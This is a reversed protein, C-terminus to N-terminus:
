GFKQSMKYSISRLRADIDYFYFPSPSIKKTSQDLEIKYEMLMSTVIKIELYALKWGLCIKSGLGFPYWVQKSPPDDIFRQPDFEKVSEGFVNENKATIYNQVLINDGKHIPCGNIEAGDKIVVKPVASVTPIYRVVEKAFADLLEHKMIFDFGRDRPAITDLENRFENVFKHDKFEDLIYMINCITSATTDHGAWVLILLNEKFALLDNHDFINGDIMKYIISTPDLQNDEYLKLCKTIMIEIEDLLRGRALMAQGLVTDPKNLNDMNIDSIGYSLINGDQIMKDSLDSSFLDNGFLVGFIVDFAFKKSKLLIQTYNDTLLSETFQQGYYKVIDFRDRLPEDMFFPNLLKRLTKHRPDSNGIIGVSENGLLHYASPPGLLHHAAPAQKSETYGKADKKIVVM